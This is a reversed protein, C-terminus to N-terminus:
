DKEVYTDVKHRLLKGNEYKFFKYKNDLNLVVYQADPKYESAFRSIHAQAKQYSTTIYDTPVHRKRALNQALTKNLDALMHIFVVTYGNERVASMCSRLAEYSNGTVDYIINNGGKAVNRVMSVALQTSPQHWQKGTPDKTFTQSIDDPNVVRFSQNKSLIYNNVFTSKGAGPPGFTFVALKKKMRLVEPIPDNKSWESILNKMKIM